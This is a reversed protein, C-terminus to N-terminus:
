ATLAWAIGWTSASAAWTIGWPASVSNRVPVVHTDANTHDECIL